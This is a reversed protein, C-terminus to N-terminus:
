CRLEGAPKDRREVIFWLLFLLGMTQVVNKWVSVTAKKEVTIKQLGQMCEEQNSFYMMMMAVMAMMMQEM